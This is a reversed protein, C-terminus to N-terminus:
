CTVLITLLVSEYFSAGSLINIFNFGAAFGSPLPEAAVPLSQLPPDAEVFWSSEMEYRVHQSRCTQSVRKFTFRLM